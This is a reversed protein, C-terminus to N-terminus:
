IKTEDILYDRSAFIVGAVFPADEKVVAWKIRTRITPFGLTYIHAKPLFYIPEESRRMAMEVYHIPLANKNWYFRYATFAPSPSLSAVAVVVMSFINDTNITTEAIHDAWGTSSPTTDWSTLGVDKPSILRAGFGTDPEIGGFKQKESVAKAIMAGMLLSKYYREYLDAVTREKFKQLFLLPIQEHFVELEVESLKAIREAGIKKAETVIGDQIAALKAAAEKPSLHILAM